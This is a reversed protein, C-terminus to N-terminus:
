RSGPKSIFSLLLIFSLLNIYKSLGLASNTNEMKLLIYKLFLPKYSFKFNKIIGQALSLFVIEVNKLKLDRSHSTANDLFLFVNRDELKMKRDFQVLFNTM